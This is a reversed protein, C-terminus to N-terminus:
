PEHNTDVVWTVGDNLNGDPGATITRPLSAATPIVFETIVLQAPAASPWLAVLGLTIATLKLNWLAGHHGGEAVPSYALRRGGVRARPRRVTDLRLSPATL